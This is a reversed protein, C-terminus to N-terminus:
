GNPILARIRAHLEPLASPWLAQTLEDVYSLSLLTSPVITEVPVARVEALQTPLAASLPHGYVLDAGHAGGIILLVDNDTRVLDGRNPLHMGM